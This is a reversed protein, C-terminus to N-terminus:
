SSRRKVQKELKEGYKKVNDAADIPSKRKKIVDTAEDFGKNAMKKFNDFM